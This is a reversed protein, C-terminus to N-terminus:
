RTLVTRSSGEASVPVSAPILDALWGAGSPVLTVQARARVVVTAGDGAVQASVSELGPVSERAGVADLHENVSAQVSGPELVVRPDADLQFALQEAGALAAGDALSQVKRAQILVLTASLIVLLLGVVIASLGLTLVTIEGREHAGHRRDPRRLPRSRPRRTM